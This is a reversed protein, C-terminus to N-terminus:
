CRSNRSLHVPFFPYLIRYSAYKLSTIFGSYSGSLSSDKKATIIPSGTFIRFSNGLSPTRRSSSFVSSTVSITTSSDSPEMALISTCFIPYM